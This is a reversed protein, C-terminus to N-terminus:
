QISPREEFSVICRAGGDREVSFSGGIQRSLGTVLGLGSSRRRTSADLEFGPGDDHVWLSCVQDRRAIGVRIAGGVTGHKVANILLENLILALPMAVDNSLEGPADEIVIRVRTSLTSQITSCVAELFDRTSFSTPQMEGYLVQQAAAMAAIRRSANDLVARAESNTTERQASTLLAQLMQMNNKVRHNLEKLLVIQRSEAQKRESIDILMNVAGTLKGSRDRLPTPFPIFPVFIGDPREALAEVNRIPRGEKLALAMPCEEHAMPTGDPFYLRWTVCWKDTGLEPERGSLEVAARNYYTIRGQNDTTYIAAPLAEILQRFRDEADTAKQKAELEATVDETFCRTNVLDGDRMRGSSTIVIHKIRGDKCKLRAPYRKLEEGRGLRALIDAITPPDAHFEAIHRGIYEDAEYGLM